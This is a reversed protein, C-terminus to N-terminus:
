RLQPINGDGYAHCARSFTEVNELQGLAPSHIAADALILQLLNEDSFRPSRLYCWEFFGGPKKELRSKGELVATEGFLSQM